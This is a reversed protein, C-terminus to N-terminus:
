RLTTRAAAAVRLVASCRAPLDAAAQARDMEVARREHRRNRRHEVVSQAQSRHVLVAHIDADNRQGTRVAIPAARLYAELRRPDHVVVHRRRPGSMGIPQPPESRKGHCYSARARASSSRATAAPADPTMTSALMSPFDSISGAKADIQDAISALASGTSTCGVAGGPTASMSM